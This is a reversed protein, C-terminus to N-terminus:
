STAQAQTCSVSSISNNGKILCPFRVDSPIDELTRVRCSKIVSFGSREAIPFTEWKNMFHNIMGQKGNINFIFFHEKLEDYHRDMFCISADSACLIVPKSEENWYDKRLISLIDELVEMYYKKYIYKSFRLNCWDLRCHELLLVVPYGNKGLSRILGLTNVHNGGIVIVKTDSKEMMNGKIFSM